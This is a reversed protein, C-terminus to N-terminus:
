EQFRKKGTAIFKNYFVVCNPDSLTQTFRQIFSQAGDVSGFIQVLTPLAQDLRSKMLDREIFIREGTFLLPQIKLTIESLGQTVLHTKLKRGAFFDLAACERLRNLQSELNREIPYIQSFLGDGDVLRLSGEPKLVSVLNSVATQQEEVIMHQLVFRCIITDFGDEQSPNFTLLDAKRFSVNSQFSPATKWRAQDIRVQSSDWGEIRSHPSSKQMLLITEGSGCGADLVRDGLSLGELDPTISYEDVKSQQDLRTSEGPSELTYAHVRRSPSM